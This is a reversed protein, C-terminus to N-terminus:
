VQNSETEFDHNVISRLLKLLIDVEKEGRDLVRKSGTWFIFELKTKKICINEAKFAIKSFIWQNPLLTQKNNKWVDFNIGFENIFPPFNFLLPLQLGIKQGEFIQFVMTSNFLGFVEHFSKDTIEVWRKFLIIIRLLIRYRYYFGKCIM